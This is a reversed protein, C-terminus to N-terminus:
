KLMSLVINLIDELAEVEAKKTEPKEPEAPKTAEAKQEAAKEEEKVINWLHYVQDKLSDIEKHWETVQKDIEASLQSFKASLRELLESTKPETEKPEDKKSSVVTVNYGANKLFAALAENLDASVRKSIDESM